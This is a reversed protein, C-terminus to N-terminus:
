QASNHLEKTGGQTGKANEDDPIALTGTMLIENRLKQTLPTLQGSPMRRATQWVRALKAGIAIPAGTLLKGWGGLQGVVWNKAM